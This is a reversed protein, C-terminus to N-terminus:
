WWIKANAVKGRNAMENFPRFTTSGDLGTLHTGKVQTPDDPHLHNGGQRLPDGPTPFSNQGSPWMRNLDMWMYPMEVNDEMRYAFIQKDAVYGSGPRNKMVNEAFALGRDGTLSYRGYVFSGTFVGPLYFTDNNWADNTVSYWNSRIAGYSALEKKWIGRAFYPRTDGQPINDSVGVDNGIDPLLSKNDIAYAVSAMGLSRQDAACQMERASERAKSLAPLLIAILLAIISIVVLLEILTFGRRMYFVDWHDVTTFLHQM